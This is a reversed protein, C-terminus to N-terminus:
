KGSFFFALNSQEEHAWAWGLGGGQEWFAIEHELYGKTHTHRQSFDSLRRLQTPTSAGLNEGCIQPLLIYEQLM